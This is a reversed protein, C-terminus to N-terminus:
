NANPLSSSGCVSAEAVNLLSGIDGAHIRIGACDNASQSELLQMTHMSLEVVLPPENLLEIVRRQVCSEDMEAEMDSALLWTRTSPASCAVRKKVTSM